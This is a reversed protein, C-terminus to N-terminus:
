IPFFNETHLLGVIGFRKVLHDHFHFFCVLDVGEWGGRGNNIFILRFFDESVMVFRGGARISNWEGEIPNGVGEEGREAM